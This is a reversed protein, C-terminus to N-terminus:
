KGARARLDAVWMAAKQDGPMAQLYLEYQELACSADRLYLDCLIALNRRAFHFGPYIALAQEYSKRAEAFRGTRRYVIGLENLAVPHRPNLELAKKLSAEAHELDGKERYAIGLDIHAATADPAAKTVESLKEIGSDFQKQELARLANEFDSRASGSARVTETITFGSVDQLVAPAPRAGGSGACALGLGAAAVLAAASHIRAHIRNNAM